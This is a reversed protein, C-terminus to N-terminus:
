EDDGRRRHSSSAPEAGPTGYLAHRLQARGDHIRSKVTGVPIDLLEAIDSYELECLDRLFVPEVLRNDLKEAADLVDIRAGAIVSPTSGGAVLDPPAELVSRRRKLKRYTDISANTTLQYMWTTFKSRGEFTGVRRAIALLSDQAAEEADLPNPLFRRCRALILPRAGVLLKDLAAADGGAAQRGLTEIEEFDM